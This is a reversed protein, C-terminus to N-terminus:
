GRVAARFLEGAPAGAEAPAAAARAAAPDLPAAYGGM